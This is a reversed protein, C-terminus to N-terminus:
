AQALLVKNNEKDLTLKITLDDKAVTMVDGDWTGTAGNIQFLAHEFDSIGAIATWTKDLGDTIFDFTTVKDQEMGNLSGRDGLLFANEATLMCNENIVVGYASCDVHSIQISDITEAGFKLPLRMKVPIFRVQAKM